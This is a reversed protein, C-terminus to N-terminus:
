AVNVKHLVRLSNLTIKQPTLKDRRVLEYFRFKRKSKGDDKTENLWDRASYITVSDKEEGHQLIGGEKNM